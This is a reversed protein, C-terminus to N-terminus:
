GRPTQRYTPWSSMTPQAWDGMRSDRKTSLHPSVNDMVIAIRVNPPYLARLPLARPLEHPREENQHETSKTRKLDYAAMLHRVGERVQGGKGPFGTRRLGRTLTTTAVGVNDTRSGPMLSAKCSLNTTHLACCGDSEGSTPLKDSLQSQTQKLREVIVIQGERRAFPQAYKPHLKPVEATDLAVVHQGESCPVDLESIGM